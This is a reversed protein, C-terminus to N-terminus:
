RGGKHGVRAGLGPYSAPLPKEKVKSAPGAMPAQAYSESGYNRPWRQDEIAGKWTTSVETAVKKVGLAEEWAWGARLM